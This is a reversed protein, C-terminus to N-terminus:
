LCREKFHRIGDEGLFTPPECEGSRTAGASSRARARPLRATEARAAKRPARLPAAEITAPEDILPLSDVAIADALATAPEANAAVGRHPAASEAVSATDVEVRAAPRPHRRFFVVLSAALSAAAVAVVVLRWASRRPLPPADRSAPSLTDRRTFRGTLALVTDEEPEDVEARGSQTLSPPLLRRVAALAQRSPEFHREGLATVLAALRSPSAPTVASELALAFDLATAFRHAPERQLAKDVLSSLAKPTGARVSRLEPIPARLVRRLGEADSVGEAEFLPRGALAEWLLVGAAFVDSRRDVKAGIVLEPSLHGFRGPVRGGWAASSEGVSRAMGFDLLKVQGNRDVMVHEPSVACHVIGLALGADDKAEHVSHLGRLLPVLLGVAVDPELPRKRARRHALLMRLTVGDVHELVLWSDSDSELVDVLEVVNPHRVRAHVRAEAKFRAVRGSQRAVVSNLQKIALLRAFQGAGAVVGYRVCSGESSAIVAGLSYRSLGAEPWFHPIFAASRRRAGGVDDAANYAGPTTM